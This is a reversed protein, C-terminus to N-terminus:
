FGEPPAAKLDKLQADRDRLKASRRKTWSDAMHRAHDHTLEPTVAITRLLELLPQTDREQAVLWADMQAHDIFVPQRHHGHNMVYESAPRMLLSMTIIETQSDPSRWTRYIAAAHLLEGDARSFYVETGETSGWYCPERFSSIPVVCRSTRFADKWPWKRVSEIRANNLTRKPDSPGECGPPSFAFQMPFLWRQTDHDELLGPVMDRPLFDESVEIEAGLEAGYLAAVKDLSPGLNFRNCM